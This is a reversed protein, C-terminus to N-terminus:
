CAMESQSNEAARAFAFPCPDQAPKAGTNWLPTLSFAFVTLNHTRGFLSPKPKKASKGDQRSGTGGDGLIRLERGKLWEWM